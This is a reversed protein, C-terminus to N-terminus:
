CAGDWSHSEVIWDQLSPNPKTSHAVLSVNCQLQRSPIAVMAGGIPVIGGVSQGTFTWRFVRKTPNIDVTSVPPGKAIVYDSIPRGIVTDLAATMKLQQQERQTEQQQQWTLDCGVLCFLILPAGAAKILIWGLPRMSGGRGGYGLNVLIHLM